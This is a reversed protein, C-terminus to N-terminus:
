STSSRLKRTQATMTATVTMLAAPRLAASCSRLLRHAYFEVCTTILLSTTVFLSTTIFLSPRFCQNGKLQPMNRHRSLKIDAIDLWHIDNTRIHRSQVPTDKELAEPGAKRSRIRDIGV